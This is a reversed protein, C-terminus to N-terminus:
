WTTFVSCKGQSSEQTDMAESEQSQQTSESEGNQQTGDEAMIHVETALEATQEEEATKAVDTKGNAAAEEVEAEEAEDKPDMYGKNRSRFIRHYKRPPASKVTKVIEEVNVSKPEEEENASSKITRGSRTKTVEPAQGEESSITVPSDSDRLSQGRTNESEVGDPTWEPDEEMEFPDKEVQKRGRKEKALREVPKKKSKVLDKINDKFYKTQTNTQKIDSDGVKPSCVVILTTGSDHKLVNKHVVKSNSLSGIPDKPKVNETFKSYVDPNLYQSRFRVTIEEGDPTTMPRSERKPRKFIEEKDDKHSFIEEHSSSNSTGDDAEIIFGEDPDDLIDHTETHDIASSPMSRSSGGSYVNEKKVSVKDEDPEQKITRGARSSYTRVSSKKVTFLDGAEEELDTHVTSKPTPKNSSSAIRVAPQMVVTRTHLRQTPQKKKPSRDCDFEFSFPDQEEEPEARQKQGDADTRPKVYSVNGFRSTKPKAFVEDFSKSASTDPTQAKGYTRGSFRKVDAMNSVKVQFSWFIRYSVAVDLSNVFNLIM